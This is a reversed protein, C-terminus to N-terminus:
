GNPNGPLFGEPGRAGYTTVFSDAYGYLADPLGPSRCLSSHTWSSFGIAARVSSLARRPTLVVGTNRARAVAELAAQADPGLLSPDYTIVVHGHELNHVFLEPAVEGAHAGTATTSGYHM